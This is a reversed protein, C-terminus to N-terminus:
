EDKEIKSKITNGTQLSQRWLDPYRERITLFWKFSNLQRKLRIFVVFRFVNKRVETDKIVELPDYHPDTPILVDYKNVIRECKEGLLGVSAVIGIAFM